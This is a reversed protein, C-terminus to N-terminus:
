CRSPFSLWPFVVIEISANAFMVLWNPPELFGPYFLDGHPGPSKAPEYTTLGTLNISSKGPM